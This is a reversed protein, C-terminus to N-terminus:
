DLAGWGQPYEWEDGDGTSVTLTDINRDEIWAVKMVPKEYKKLEQM